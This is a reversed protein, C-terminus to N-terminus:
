VFRGRVQKMTPFLVSYTAGRRARGGVASTVVAGSQGTMYALEIQDSDAQDYYEWRPKWASVM